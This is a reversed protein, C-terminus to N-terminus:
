QHGPHETFRRLFIWVTDTSCGRPCAIVKCLESRVSVLPFILLCVDGWFWSGCTALSFASLPCFSKAGGDLFFSGWTHKVHMDNDHQWIKTVSLSASGAWKLLTACLTPIITWSVPTVPASSPATPLDRFLLMSVYKKLRYLNGPHYENLIESYFCLYLVLYLKGKLDWHGLVPNDFFDIKRFHLVCECM